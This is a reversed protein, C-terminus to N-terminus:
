PCKMLDNSRTRKKVYSAASLNVYSLNEVWGHTTKILKPSVQFYMGQQPSNFHVTKAQSTFHSKHCFIPDSYLCSLHKVHSQPFYSLIYFMFVTSMEEAVSKEVRPRSGMIFYAQYTQVPNPLLPHPSLSSIMFISLAEHKKSDSGYSPPPFPNETEKPSALNVQVDFTRHCSCFM